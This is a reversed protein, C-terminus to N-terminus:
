IFLLDWVICVNMILIRNEEGFCTNRILTEREHRSIRRFSRKLVSPGLWLVQSSSYGLCLYRDRRNLIGSIRRIKMQVCSAGLLLYFGETAIVLKMLVNSTFLSCNNEPLTAALIADPVADNGSNRRPGPKGMLLAVSDGKIPHSTWKLRCLCSPTPSDIAKMLPICSM